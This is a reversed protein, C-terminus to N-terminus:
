HQYIFEQSNLVTWLVDEWAQRRNQSSEVYALFETAAAASPERSLASLYLQNLLETDPRDQKLLGGLANDPQSIRDTVLQGVYLELAQKRGFSPERACECTETRSPPGFVRLFPHLEYRVYKGETNILTVVDNVPLQVARTGEPFTFAGEPIGETYDNMIEFRESIGTVGSIADLLVEAPLPRPTVHSFYRTDNRNSDNPRSSLQYTRSNLITRIVPRM